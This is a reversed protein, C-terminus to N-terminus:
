GASRLLAVVSAEFRSGILRIVSDIEDSHALGLRRRLLARTRTLLRERVRDNWRAVTARHVNELTAIQDLTLGDLLAYRLLNRERSSLSALAEEFAAKFEGRYLQKLYAMEHSEGPAAFRSLVEDGLLHEGRPLQLLDRAERTAVVLVWSRLDGRGAYHAIRPPKGDEAVLVRRYITQRVDGLDPEPVGVRRLTADLRAFCLRDITAAAPTACPLASLFACVLYLDAGHIQPLADPLVAEAPIRRGVFRLFEEVPVAIDPWATRAGGVFAAIERDLRALAAADPEAQALTRARVEPPVHPLLLSSWSPDASM